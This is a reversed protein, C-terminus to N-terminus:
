ARPAALFASLQRLFADPQEVHVWHGAGAIMEVRANPFRAEIAARYDPRIYDSEAGGLFLTPGDYRADAAPPEFGMLLPMNAAIAELGIRWRYGDGDNVLNQLLFQRLPPSAIRGALFADAERRSSLRAVPLSMMGEIVTDFDHAYSVPAVDVVALRCIREPHALAFHMAVKGGMSHGILAAPGSLRSELLAAVDDAMEAYSMSRAHPSDGHNRLDPTLVRYTQALRRAVSQWNRASGFLGHLVVVPSGEGFERCSLALAM